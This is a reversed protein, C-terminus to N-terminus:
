KRNEKKENIINKKIQIRIFISYKPIVEFGFEFFFVISPRQHHEKIAVRRKTYDKFIARLNNSIVIQDFLIIFFGLLNSFFFGNM